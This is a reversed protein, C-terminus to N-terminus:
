HILCDENNIYEEFVSTIYSCYTSIDNYINEIESITYRGGIVSALERGHAIANRNDALTSLRGKMKDENVAPASIGFIKWISEIQQYKINGSGAPFLNDEIHCVQSCNIQSFLDYRKMWKKDRAEMMANCEDNFVMSYLTPKLHIIDYKKQNIISLCKQVSATITYELVGYLIVFCTGKFVRMDFVGTEANDKILSYFSKVEKLRRNVEANVDEFM